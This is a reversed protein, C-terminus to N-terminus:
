IANANIATLFKMEGTTRPNSVSLVERRQYLLEQQPMHFGEHCEIAGNLDICDEHQGNQRDHSVANVIRDDDEVTM